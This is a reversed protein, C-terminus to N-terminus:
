FHPSSPPIRGRKPSFIVHMHLFTLGNSDKVELQQKHICSICSFQLFLQGKESLFLFWVTFWYFLPRFFLGSFKFTHQCQFAPLSNPLAMKLVVGNRQLKCSIACHPPYSHLLFLIGSTRTYSIVKRLLFRLSLFISLFFFVLFFFNIVPFRLVQSWDKWM